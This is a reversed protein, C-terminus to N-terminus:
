ETELELSFTSEVAGGLAETREGDFDGDGEVELYRGTGGIVEVSSTFTANTTDTAAETHGDPLYLALTSSDDFTLTVLGIFDGSGEVYNVSGLFEVQAMEGDVETTGILMNWGYVIGNDPGVQRLTTSQSVLQVRFELDAATGGDSCAAIALAGLAACLLTFRRHALTFM